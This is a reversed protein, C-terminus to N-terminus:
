ETRASLRRYDWDVRKPPFQGSRIENMTSMIQEQTNMVIPGHWAIPEKLKKGAFLIVGTETDGESQIAFGRKDNSTADFLIVSGEQIDYKENVSKLSGEYVYLMATDLDEDINFQVSSGKKLRYDIMQVPQVTQFPGKVGLANGALVRAEVDGSDNLTVLPLDKSPVTGYRPDDMKREKPVNIWIQFGQNREGKKNGGGEAHMVGSGVSMWQMGPSDFTERNGLSDGHRGKGTRIYSAIDFGRHPHWGIPFDDENKAEPSDTIADYYDCMLFPDSQDSPVGGPFAQNVSREDGFPHTIAQHHISKITMLSTTM